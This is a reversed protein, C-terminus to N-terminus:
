PGANDRQCCEKCGRKADKRHTWENRGSKAGVKGARRISMHVRRCKFTTSGSKKRIFEDGEFYGCCQQPQRM